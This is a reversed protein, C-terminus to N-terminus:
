PGFKVWLMDELGEKDSFKTPSYVCFVEPTSIFAFCGHKYKDAFSQCYGDEEKNEAKELYRDLEPRFIKVIVFDKRLIKLYPKDKKATFNLTERLPQDFSAQDGEDFVMVFLSRDKAYSSVRGKQLDTFAQDCYTEPQSNIGKFSCSSLFFLILLYKM